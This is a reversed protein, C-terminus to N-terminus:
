SCCSRASRVDSGALGARQSVAASAFLPSPPCSTFFQRSSTGQQTHPPVSCPLNMSIWKLLPPVMEPARIICHVDKEGIVKDTCGRRCAVEGGSVRQENWVERAVGM